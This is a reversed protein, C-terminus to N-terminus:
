RYWVVTIGHLSSNFTQIQVIDIGPNQNIRAEAQEQSAEILTYDFDIDGLRFALTKKFIKRQIPRRENEPPLPPPTPMTLIKHRDTKEM